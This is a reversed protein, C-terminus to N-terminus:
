TNWVRSRLALFGVHPTCQSSIRQGAWDLRRQSVFLYTLDFAGVFAPWYVQLVTAVLRAPDQEGGDEADDEKSDEQVATARKKGKDKVQLFLFRLIDFRSAPGM